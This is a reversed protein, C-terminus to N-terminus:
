VSTLAQIFPIFLTECKRVMSSFKKAVRLTDWADEVGRARDISLLLKVIIKSCKTEESYFSLDFRWTVIKSYVAAVLKM